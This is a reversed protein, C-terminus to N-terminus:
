MANVSVFVPKSGPNNTYNGNILLLGNFAEGAVLDTPARLTMPAETDSWGEEGVLPVFRCEGLTEREHTDEGTRRLRVLTQFRSTAGVPMVLRGGIALQERLPPPVDPGGAAVVIADYPAHEM